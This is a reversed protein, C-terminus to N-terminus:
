KTENPSISPISVVPLVKLAASPSNTPSESTSNTSLCARYFIGFLLVLSLPLIACKMSHLYTCKRSIHCSLHGTWRRNASTQYWSKLVSRTLNTKVFCLISIELYWFCWMRCRFRSRGEEYHTISFMKDFSIPENSMKTIVSLEVWVMFGAMHELPHFIFDIKVPKIADLVYWVGVTCYLKSCKENKMKYRTSYYYHKRNETLTQVVLILTYTRLRFSCVQM